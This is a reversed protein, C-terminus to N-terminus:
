KMGGTQAFSRAEDILKQMDGLDALVVDLESGFRTPLVLPGDASIRGMSDYGLKDAIMDAVLLCEGLPSLCPSDHHHDICDVLHDPFQWRKVLMGGVRTHDAGIIREEARHLSINESASLAMAQRFDEPMYLAFVVKGFDHLLGAMYCDTADLEPAYKDGILRMNNAAVLSSVLYHQMDFGASNREPLMGVTSFSLALNKLTNLGLYVAAQHVSNIKNTLGFYASNVIKLVKLTIVPDKEIVAVLDKPRCNIDRTMEIIRQISKPFAPMREVATSLRKDLEVSIQGM